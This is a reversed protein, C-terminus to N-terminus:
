YCWSSYCGLPFKLPDCHVNLVLTFIGFGGGEGKEEAGGAESSISGLPPHEHPVVHSGKRAPRQPTKGWNEGFTHKKRSYHCRHLSQVIVSIATVLVSIVCGYWCFNTPCQPTNTCTEAHSAVDRGRSRVGLLVEPVYWFAARCRCSSPLTVQKWM